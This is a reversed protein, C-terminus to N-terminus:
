KGQGIRLAISLMIVYEAQNMREIFGFSAICVAMLVCGFTIVKNHSIRDLIKGVFLSTISASIAMASFIIGTWISSINKEELVTPLFPSALGYITNSVFIALVVIYISCVFM